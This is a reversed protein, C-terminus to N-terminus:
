KLKSVLVRATNSHLFSYVENESAAINKKFFPFLNYPHFTLFSKLLGPRDADHACPLFIVFEICNKLFRIIM